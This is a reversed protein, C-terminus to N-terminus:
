IDLDVIAGSGTQHPGPAIHLSLPRNDLVEVPMKFLLLEGNISTQAALADPNPLVQHPPVEAAYYAIPNVSQDIPIPHFKNGLTDIVTFQQTARQDHDKPNEVRLFVGFWTQNNRLTRQAQPVGALYQRDERDYENLQRSIQIQYTLGGSRVYVGETPGFHIDAPAKKNGCASVAVAAAAILLAASLRRVM